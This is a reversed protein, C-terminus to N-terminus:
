EFAPQRLSIGYESEVCYGSSKSEQIQDRKLLLAGDCQNKGNRSNPNKKSHLSQAMLLNYLQERYQLAHGSAPLDHGIMNDDPLGRFRQSLAL